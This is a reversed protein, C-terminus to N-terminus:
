GSVFWWGAVAAIVAAAGLMPFLVLAALLLGSITVVAAAVGLPWLLAVTAKTPPSADVRLVGVVVGAAYVVILAPTLVPRIRAVGAIINAM